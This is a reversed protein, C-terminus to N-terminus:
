NDKLYNLVDQKTITFKRNSEYYLSPMAANVAAYDILELAKNLKSQVGENEDLDFREEPICGYVWDKTITFLPELDSERCDWVEDEAIDSIDVDEGELISEVFDELDKYFTDNYFFNEM